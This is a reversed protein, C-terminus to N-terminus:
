KKGKVECDVGLRKTEKIVFDHDDAAEQGDKRRIHEVVEVPVSARLRWNGDKSMGNKNVLNKKRNHIVKAIQRERDSVSKGGVTPAFSKPNPDSRGRRPFTLTKIKDLFKRDKDTM